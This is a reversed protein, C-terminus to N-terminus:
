SPWCKAGYPDSLLLGNDKALGLNFVCVFYKLQDHCMGNVTSQFAWITHIDLLRSSTQFKWETKDMLQLVYCRSIHTGFSTVFVFIVLLGTCFLNSIFLLNWQVVTHSLQFMFSRLLEKLLYICIVFYVLTASHKLLIRSRSVEKRKSCSTFLLTQAATTPSIFDEFVDILYVSCSYTKTERHSYNDSPKM